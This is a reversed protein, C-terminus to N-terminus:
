FNAAKRSGVKQGKRYLTTGIASKLANKNKDKSQSSNAHSCFTSVLWFDPPAHAHVTETGAHRSGVPTINQLATAQAATNPQRDLGVVVDLLHAPLGCRSTGNDFTLSPHLTAKSQGPGCLELPHPIVALRERVRKDHQNSQRSFFWAQPHPNGRATRKPDSDLAIAGLAQQTLRNSGFDRGQESAAINDQYSAREQKPRLKAFNCFSNRPKQPTCVKVPGIVM